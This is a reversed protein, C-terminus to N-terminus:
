AYVLYLAQDPHVDSECLYRSVEHKSARQSRFLSREVAASHM